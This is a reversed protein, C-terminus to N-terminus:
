TLARLGVELALVDCLLDPVVSASKADQRAQALRKPDVYGLDVLVSDGLMADLEPLGYMRLGAEMVALFNEPEAPAAVSDSLGARRLRSRFMAKGRKYEHPLQEMFRVIRPDVLPSVPWIGRRLYGPNHMGFGMLTPLPLVSMPALAENVDTIAEVARRGLWPVSPPDPLQVDTRSHHANIEDGGSGTFMVECGRTAAQDRLVDFAEQYFAGAPDHPRRAARVGGSVFPPHQLAPIASDRFGCLEALAARRVRQQVGIAGGVLLGFSHARPFGVARVSLAVNGSDAGGSLEVGVCEVGTSAQRVVHNLLGDFADVPDLDARLKRPELVHEAPEPYHVSLGAANFVVSARETLRYVGEFLTDATYRHQRTLTRAVVRPVLRDTRIYPRLDAIDWSGYLEEGDAVVYVPATGFAGAALQVEEPAMTLSVYDNQERGEERVIVNVWNPARDDNFETVLVSLNAPKIWSAGTTWVGGFLTWNPERLDRLRLHM